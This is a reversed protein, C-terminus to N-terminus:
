YFVKVLWLNKNMHPVISTYSVNNRIIRLFWKYEKTSLYKLSCVNVRFQLVCRICWCSLSIDLFSLVFMLLTINSEMIMNVFVSISNNWDQGLGSYINTCLHFLICCWSCNIAAQTINGTCKYQVCNRNYRLYQMVQYVESWIVISIHLCRPCDSYQM